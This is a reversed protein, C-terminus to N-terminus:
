RELSEEDAAVEVFRVPLGDLSRAPLGGLSANLAEVAERAAKGPPSLVAIRVEGGVRTKLSRDYTLAKLVLPVQVAFPVVDSGASAPVPPTALATILVAIFFAPPHM